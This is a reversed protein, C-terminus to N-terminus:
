QRVIWDLIYDATVQWGAQGLVFHNHGAFEHYATVSNSHSYKSFNAYNLAAPITHDDSGSLFLLPAHPNEFDVHAAATVTDRVVLKSEPIAYSYYGAKQEECGMGNAFAYKWQPFSMMFSKRTSTFYGLPGWGAKLFSWSFKFVGQPPVSHIAVAAAGLGRQLLLQAILGGLSHGILIPKEPCRAAVAAYHETLAALRNGAIGANPHSNRLAEAPANKHPWPPAQTAYGKDSFYAKWNDWCTHSVFAGTIFLVTKSRILEM